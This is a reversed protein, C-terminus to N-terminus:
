DESQEQGNGLRTEAKVRAIESILALGQHREQRNIYWDKMLYEVLWILSDAEDSDVDVILNVDQEMHAGINGITRVGNIASWTDPDVDNRIADIEQSLTRKDKVDWFNRIMGQLCRRSMSASAKPSLNKIAVAETYDGRIQAPIYEPFAKADHPPVLSWEQLKNVAGLYIGVASEGPSAEYLALYIAQRRCEPNPCVLRQYKLVHQGESSPNWFDIQGNTTDPSNITTDRGCYPCTWPGTDELM